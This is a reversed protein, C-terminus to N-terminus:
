HAIQSLFRVQIRRFGYFFNHHFAYLGNHVCESLVFLNVLFEAQRLIVLIGVLHILKKDTLSFKLIDDICSIGPIEVTFQFASHIGETTRGFVCSYVMKRSTLTATHCKAAQQQLLGIHQQQVFRGVVKVSFGDIPQFLMQLLVLTRHNGYGVVTVEEVMHCAPNKFEVTAFTDGPFTVIGAPQFLLGLAHFHFLFGGALAALCQLTLQLPHTHSRFRTLRFTLCTQIRVIFQHIFIDLLFFLFKFDKDRITRTKSILNDFRFM